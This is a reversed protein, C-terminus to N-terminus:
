KALLIFLSSGAAFLAGGAGAVPGVTVGGAIPPQAGGAPGEEEEPEEPKAGGVGGQTISTDIDIGVAIDGSRCDGVTTNNSCRNGGTNAAIKFSHSVNASNNVDVDRNNSLNVEASNWSDPGTPGTVSASGSGGSGGFCGDCLGSNQDINTNLAINANIDGSVLDGATTNHSITNNGTNLDLDFDYSVNATNSININVSTSQNVTATNTSDPGTPGTVSASNDAALAFGAQSMLLALSLTATALKNM